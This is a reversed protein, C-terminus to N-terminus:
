TREMYKLLMFLDAVTLDRKLANCRCCIICINGEVYGKANNRRDISPSNNTPTRATLDFPEDCCECVPDNTLKRQIDDRSIAFDDWPVGLM